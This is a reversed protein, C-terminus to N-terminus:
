LSSKDPAGSLDNEPLQNSATPTWRRETLYFVSIIIWGIWFMYAGLHFREGLWRHSLTHRFDQYTFFLGALAIVLASIHVLKARAAPWKRQTWQQLFFLLM